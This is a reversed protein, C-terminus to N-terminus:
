VTIWRTQKMNENQDHYNRLDGLRLYPYFQHQSVQEETYHSLANNKHIPSWKIRNVAPTKTNSTATPFIKTFSHKFPCTFPFLSLITVTAYLRSSSLTYIYLPSPLDDRAELKM